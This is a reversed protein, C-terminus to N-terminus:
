LHSEKYSIEQIDIRVVSLGKLAKVPFEEPEAGYQGVVINLGASKENLDQLISAEGSGVVSGYTMSFKCATKADRLLAVEHELAFSVRPNEQLMRMKKGELSGHFYICGDAYGYSLPVVYPQQGNTFAVHCYLANQFVENIKEEREKESFETKAM